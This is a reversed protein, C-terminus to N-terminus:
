VSRSHRAAEQIKESCSEVDEVMCEAITELMGDFLALAVFNQPLKAEIEQKIENAKDKCVEEINLARIIDLEAEPVGESEEEIENLIRECFRDGRRELIPCTKSKIRDKVKNKATESAVEELIDRANKIGIGGINPLGTDFCEDLGSIIGNKVGEKVGEEVGNIIASVIESKILEYNNECLGEINERVRTEANSNEKEGM